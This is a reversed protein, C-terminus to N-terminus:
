DLLLVLNFVACQCNSNPVWFKLVLFCVHLFNCVVCVGNTRSRAVNGPVSGGSGLINQNNKKGSQVFMGFKLIKQFIWM